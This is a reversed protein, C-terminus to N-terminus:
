SDQTGDLKEQGTKLWFAIEERTWGRCDNRLMIEMGLGCPNDREGLGPYLEELGEWACQQIHYGAGIWAAGLACARPREFENKYGYCGKIQKSVECGKLIDEALRNRTEQDM